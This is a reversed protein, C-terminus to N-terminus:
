LQYQYGAEAISVREGMQITSIDELFKGWRSINTNMVFWPISPVVRKSLLVKEKV